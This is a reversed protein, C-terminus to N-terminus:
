TQIEHRLTAGTPDTLAMAGARRNLAVQTIRIHKHRHGALAAGRWAFWDLIQATDYGYDIFFTHCM